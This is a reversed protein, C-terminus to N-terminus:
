IPVWQGNTFQAKQGTQPNTATQGEVPGAGQPAAQPQTAQPAAQAPSRSQEEQDLQEVKKLEIFDAITNGPTGLFVAADQLQSILKEQVVRKRQLWKKLDPGRLTKPLASSLAFEREGESLAGFKTSAIVDLGLKKQLNDLEISAKRVSPLKSAIVGTSAGEDILRIADDINSLNQQLPELRKFSEASLKIAAKAAEKGGSILPAIDKEAELVAKKKGGARGIQTETKFKEGQKIADIADKGELVNGAADSVIKRGLSTTQITTGDPLTTTAASFRERGGGILDILPKGARVQQELVQQFQDDPLALTQELRSTDTGQQRMQQIRQQAFAKRQEPPLALTDIAGRTIQEVEQTKRDQLFAQLQQARAPDAGALDQLEQRGGGAALGGLRQSEKQLGIQRLGEAQRIGGALAGGVNPVLQFAGPNVLGNAM